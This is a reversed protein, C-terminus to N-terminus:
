ETWHNGRPKGQRELSVSRAEYLEALRQNAEAMRDHARKQERYDEQMEQMIQHMLALSADVAENARRRERWWAWCM